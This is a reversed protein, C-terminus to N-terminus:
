MYLQNWVGNMASEYAGNCSWVATGESPLKAQPLWIYANLTTFITSTRLLYPVISPTHFAPTNKTLVMKKLLFGDFCLLSGDMGFRLTELFTWKSLIRQNNLLNNRLPIGLSGPLKPEVIDICDAFPPPPYPWGWADAAKVGWSYLRLRGWSWLAAPLIIDIFFELSVM